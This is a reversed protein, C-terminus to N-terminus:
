STQCKQMNGVIYAFDGAKIRCIVGKIMLLYSQKFPSRIEELVEFTHPSYITGLVKDQDVVKGMDEITVHPCLLGGVASLIFKIEDFIYQPRVTESPGDVMDLYKLVNYLSSIGKGIYEDDRRIGGGVEATVATIGREAAYTMASGPVSVGRILAPSGFARAFDEDNVIYTYDVTFDATGAHLDIFYDVNPFFKQSMVHTMKETIFGEPKGPFCRNLNLMDIPTNRTGSEFAPPNEVPIILISGRLSDAEIGEVFRRLIEIALPEDGHSTALVGLRPGDKKGVIKHLPLRLEAGSSLVTVDLWEFTKTAKEGTNKGMPDEQEQNKYVM